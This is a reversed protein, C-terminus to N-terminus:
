KEALNFTNIGTAGKLDSKIVYNSLDLEVKVFRESPKNLHKLFINVWKICYCRKKDICSNFSHDYDKWKVHLKNGKRRIEKKVRFDTQNIKQLEKKHFKGITEEGNLDTIVYTRSVTDEVKKIIFVEESCNPNCVKAFINKYKPIRVGDGVKFRPDKDNSKVNVDKVNVPKMKMARHNTNNYKNVIDDSNDIYANKWISTVNKYIKNKLTRNFNETVVSKGGNHTIIQFSDNWQNMTFENCKDVWIKKLRCNSEVLINQCTKTITISKKDKLPIVWAYKSFVNIVCLLFWIEKNLWGILEM